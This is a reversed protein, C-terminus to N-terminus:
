SLKSLPIEPDALKYSRILAWNRIRFPVNVWMNQLNFYVLRLKRKDTQTFIKWFSATYLFHM